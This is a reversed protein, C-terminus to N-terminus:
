TVFWALVEEKGKVRVDNSPAETREGDQFVLRVNIVNGAATLIHCLM